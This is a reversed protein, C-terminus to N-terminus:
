LGIQSGAGKDKRFPSRRIEERELETRRIFRSLHFSLQSVQDPKLQVPVNKLFTPLAKPNLVWISSKVKNTNEVYWGPFVIVPKVSCAQGTSEKLLANLWGAQARAQILPNRDPERGWATLNLGDFEIKAEGRAPKSWTKTEVTFVGGPGILVHDINFNDGIVDHFVHYGQERLRELYQGVAKEGEEARRLRQVHPIIKFLRIGLIVLSGAFMWTWLWPSTSVGTWEEQWKVISMVFLSVAFTLPFVLKDFALDIRADHLSQGPTRVPKAKLPSRSKPQEKAMTEGIAQNWAM